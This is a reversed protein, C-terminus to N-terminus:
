RVVELSKTVTAPLEIALMEAEIVLAGSLERALNRLLRLAFGTGLLAADEREDDIAFLAENSYALLARPRTVAMVVRNGDERLSVAIREGESAASLLTALLRSLLREVARADAAVSADDAPLVIAAGRTTALAGLDEVIRGLLPRLAVDGTQLRLASAEIRAAIDLDEIAALLARAHDRIVAARSRYVPAVEGLMQREIMEAFGAIANAPTRLEHMLQRLSDASAGPAPVFAADDEVRPRRATGRYGAFRGTVPDFAPAASIRWDGAADSEGVVVLRGNNFAARQRFAGAVSGDVGSAGAVGSVELTLGILPARAVGDVWRVSGQADTEFRFGDIRPREVAAVSRDQQLTYFADIRAVVDAIEFPGDVEDRDATRVGGATAADASGARIIPEELMAEDHADASDPALPAAALPEDGTESQAVTSDALPVPDSASRQLAAAVVPISLAAVGVSVFTSTPAVPAAVDDAPDIQAEAAEVRPEDPAEGAQALASEAGEGREIAFDGTFSALAAEIGAPLDRRARVVARAAASLQPLLDIWEGSTLQASRLVPAAVAIEDVACLRVLAFPPEALELARASAARVGVPVEGRISDLLALARGDPAARRRGILDVLQRWASAKGFPTSIDAALVTQLTDDFRM